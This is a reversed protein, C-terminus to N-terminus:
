PKASRLIEMLTPLWSMGVYGIAAYKMRTLGSSGKGLMAELLGWVFVTYCVPDAVGLLLDKIPQTARSIKETIEGNTAMAGDPTTITVTAVLATLIALDKKTIETDINLVQHGHFLQFATIKMLTEEEKSNHSLDL